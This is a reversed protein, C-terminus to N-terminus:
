PGVSVAWEFQTNTPVQWPQETFRLVSHLEDISGFGAM